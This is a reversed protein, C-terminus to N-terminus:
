PERGKEPSDPDPKQAPTEEGTMFAPLRPPQFPEPGRTAAVFAQLTQELRESWGHYHHRVDNVEWRDDPKVYLLPRRGAGGAPPQVPLHFSWEPTRLVWEAKGASRLGACAYHRVPGIKGQLLPVLSCGHTLPPAMGFLDCLTPLLDVTQTLALVRRGAQEREPLRFILPIHVVEEHLQSWSPWLLTHEGLSQGSDTTLVLLVDERLARRELEGCLQGVWEDFQTVAAAYQRQRIFFDNEEACGEPGDSADNAPEDYMNLLEQPVNWPPRLCTIDTHLLWREQRMLKDLSRSINALRRKLSDGAAERAAPPEACVEVAVGHPKLYGCPADLQAPQDQDLLPLDYRGSHWARRAASPDPDVAIHQDFVVAEAALRDLNETVVWENGYCGLYGIHLGGAVVVLIKM